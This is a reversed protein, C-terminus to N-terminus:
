LKTLEARLTAMAATNTTATQGDLVSPQSLPMPKSGLSKDNWEQQTFGPSPPARQPVTPFRIDEQTGSVVTPTFVGRSIVSNIQRQQPTSEASSSPPSLESGGGGKSQDVNKKSGHQRQKSFSHKAVVAATRKTHRSLPALLHAKPGVGAEAVAAPQPPAHRKSLTALKNNTARHSTLYRSLVEESLVKQTRFEACRAAVNGLASRSDTVDNALPPSHSIGASHKEVFCVSKRHTPPLQSASIPDRQQSSTIPSISLPLFSSSVGVAVAPSIEASSSTLSYYSQSVNAAVASSAGTRPVSFMSQERRALLASVRSLEQKLLEREHTVTRLQNELSPIQSDKMRGDKSAEALAGALRAELEEIKGKLTPIEQYTLRSVARESSVTAADNDKMMIQLQQELDAKSKRQRALTDEHYMAASSLAANQRTLLAAQRRYHNTSKTLEKVKNKLDFVEVSSASNANLMGGGISSITTPPRRPDFASSSAVTATTLTNRSRMTARGVGPTFGNPSGGGFRGFPSSSAGGDASMPVLPMGSLLRMMIRSSQMGTSEGCISSDGGDNTNADMGGGLQPHNGGDTLGKPFFHILSNGHEDLRLSGGPQPVVQERHQPLRRATATPSVGTSGNKPSMSRVAMMAAADARPSHSPTKALSGGGVVSLVDDTEEVKKTKLGQYEDRDDEDDDTGLENGFGDAGSFFTDPLDLLGAGRLAFINGVDNGTMESVAKRFKENADVIMTNQVRLDVIQSELGRIQKLMVTREHSARKVDRKAVKLLRRMAEERIQTNELSELLFKFVNATKDAINRIHPMSSPLQNPSELLLLLQKESNEDFPQPRIGGAATQHPAPSNSGGTQQVSNEFLLARMKRTDVTFPTAESLSPSGGKKQIGYKKLLADVSPTVHQLARPFDSRDKETDDDDDVLEGVIDSPDGAGDSEGGSSSQRSGMLAESATSGARAARRGQEIAILFDDVLHGQCPPIGGDVPHGDKTVLSPPEGTSSGRTQTVTALPPAIGGKTPSDKQTAAVYGLRFRGGDEYETDKFSTARM